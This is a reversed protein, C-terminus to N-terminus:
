RMGRAAAQARHGSDLLAVLIFGGTLGVHEFFGNAVMVRQAPPVNWFANALLNAALTFAALLLASILRLRGRTLLILLSAVLEIAIVAAAFLPAPSLGFHQMEGIAEPFDLLKDIGGQVYAGCLSLLALWHVVLLWRRPGHTAHQM